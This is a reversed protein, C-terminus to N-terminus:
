CARRVGMYPSLARPNILQTPKLPTFSFIPLTVWWQLVTAESQSLRGLSTFTERTLFSSPWVAESFPFASMQQIWQLFGPSWVSFVTATEPNSLGLSIADLGLSEYITLRAYGLDMMGPIMFFISCYFSLFWGM